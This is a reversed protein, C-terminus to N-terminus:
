PTARESDRAGSMSLASTSRSRRVRSANRTRATSITRNEPPSVGSRVESSAAPVSSRMSGISGSSAVRAARSRARPAPSPRRARPRGRRAAGSCAAARSRARAPRAPVRALRPQGAHHQEAVADAGGRGERGLVHPQELRQGVVGADRELVVPELLGDRAHALQLRPELALGIAVRQGPQAVARQEQAPQLLRQAAASALRRHQEEVEIVELGDVVLAPVRGAVGHQGLHGLADTGAHARVVDGRPEAAVLERDQELVDVVGVALRDGGADQVQEGRGHLDAVREAHACPEIPMAVAGDPDTPASSSIRWASTAM